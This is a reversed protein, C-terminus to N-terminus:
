TEQQLAMLEHSENVVLRQREGHGLRRLWPRTSLLTLEGGDGLVGSVNLVHSAFVIKYGVAEGLHNSPGDVQAEVVCGHSLILSRVKLYLGVPHGGHRQEHFIHHKVRGVSCEEAVDGSALQVGHYRSASPMLDKVSDVAKEVRSHFGRGLQHPGFVDPRAQPLVDPGPSSNTHRALTCLHSTTRDPCTNQTFEPPPGTHHGVVLLNPSM